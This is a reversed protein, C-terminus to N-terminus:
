VLNLEEKPMPTYVRGLAIQTAFLADPRGHVIMDPIPGGFPGRISGSPRCNVLQSPKRMCPRQDIGIHMGDRPDSLRPYAVHRYKYYCQRFSYSFM